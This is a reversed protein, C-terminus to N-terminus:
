ANEYYWELYEIAADADMVVTRRGSQFGYTAQKNRVLLDIDTLTFNRTFLSALTHHRM